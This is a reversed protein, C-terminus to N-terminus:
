SHNPRGEAPPPQLRYCSEIFETTLRASKASIRSPTGTQCQELFARWQAHVAQFGGKNAGDNELARDLHAIPAGKRTELLAGADEANISVRLRAEAFCILIANYLEALWSAALGFRCRRGESLQLTGRTKFEFEIDDCYTLECKELKFGRAGSLTLVQDIVHCGAEILVGGGAAGRNARWSWNGAQSTSRLQQGESAWIEEIPGLLSHSILREAAVTGAYFRRLLGVGVQVGADSAAQLIHDHQLCTTAFPKEVFAHWRRSFVTALVSERSGIPTAILAIDVDSCDSLEQKAQKVGFTRAVREARNRDIDCVWKLDIEPMAALVPLHWTEAVWGVGVVGVTFRRSRM